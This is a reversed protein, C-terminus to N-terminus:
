DGELPGARGERYRNCIHCHRAGPFLTGWDEDGVFSPGVQLAPNAKAAGALRQRGTQQSSPCPVSPAQTRQECVLHMPLVQPCPCYGPLGNRHQALNKWEQLLTSPGSAREGIGTIQM